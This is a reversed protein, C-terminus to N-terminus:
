ECHDLLVEDWPHMSPEICTFGDVYDVIYAFEFFFVWMIMKNSASFAKSKMSFTNYLDPFIGQFDGLM